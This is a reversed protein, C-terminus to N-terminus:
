SGGVITASAKLLGQGFFRQPPAILPPQDIVPMCMVILQADMGTLSWTGIAGDNTITVYVTGQNGTHNAPVIALQNNPNIATRPVSPWSFHPFILGVTTINGFARGILTGNVPDGLTVSCGLRMAAAFLAAFGSQKAGTFVGFVMPRWPFRQQPVAFSCIQLDSGTSTKVSQFASEPISYTPVRLNDFATPQFKQTFSNFVIADGNDLHGTTNDFDSADRLPANAPGQPGLISGQDFQFMLSPDEDVGERIINIPTTLSELTNSEVLEAAITFKPTPGPPGPVGLLRPFWDTGSWIYLQNGIWYAKGIDADTNTLHPPLESASTFDNEWQMKVVKADEGKPGVPGIATNMTVTAVPGLNPDTVLEFAGNTMPVHNKDGVIGWFNLTAVTNGLYVRDGVVMGPATM